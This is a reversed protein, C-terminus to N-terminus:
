KENKVGLVTLYELGVNEQDRAKCLAEHESEAEIEVPYSWNTPQGGIVYTM